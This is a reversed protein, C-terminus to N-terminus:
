ELLAISYAHGDLREDIADLRKGLEDLARGIQELRSRQELLANLVTVINPDTM